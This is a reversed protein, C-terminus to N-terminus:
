VPVCDRISVGGAAAAIIFSLFGTAEEAVKRHLNLLKKM